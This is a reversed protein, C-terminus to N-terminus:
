MHGLYYHHLPPTQHLHPSHEKQPSSFPVYVKKLFVVTLDPQSFSM